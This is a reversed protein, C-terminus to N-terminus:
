NPYKVANFQRADSAQALPKANISHPKYVGCATPFYGFVTQECLFVLAKEKKAVWTQANRELEPM